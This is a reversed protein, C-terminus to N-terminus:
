AAMTEKEKEERFVRRSMALVSEFGERGKRANESFAMVSADEVANKV